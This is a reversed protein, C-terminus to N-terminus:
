AVKPLPFLTKDLDTLLNEEWCEQLPILTKKTLPNVIRIV